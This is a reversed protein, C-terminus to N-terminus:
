HTEGIRMERKFATDIVVRTKMANRLLVISNM